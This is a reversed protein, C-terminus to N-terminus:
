GNPPLIDGSGGDAPQFLMDLLRMHREASGPADSSRWFVSLDPRHGSERLWAIAAEGDERTPKNM